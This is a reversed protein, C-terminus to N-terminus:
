FGPAGLKGLLRGHRLAEKQGLEVLLRVTGRRNLLRRFALHM